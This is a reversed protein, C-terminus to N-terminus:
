TPLFTVPQSLNNTWTQTNNGDIFTGNPTSQTNLQNQLAQSTILAATAAAVATKKIDLFSTGPNNILEQPTLTANLAKNISQEVRICDAEHILGLDLLERAIGSSSEDPDIEATM